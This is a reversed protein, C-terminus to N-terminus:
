WVLSIASTLVTVECAWTEMNCSNLKVSNNIYVHLIFYIMSATSTIHSFLHWSEMQYWDYSTSVAICHHRQVQDVIFVLVDCQRVFWTIDQKTAQFPFSNMWAKKLKIYPYFSINTKIRLLFVWWTAGLVPAAETRILSMHIWTYATVM